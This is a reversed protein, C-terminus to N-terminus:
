ESAAAETRRLREAMSALLGRAITPQHDLLDLFRERPLRVAWLDCAAVVSASRPSGDLLGLEGFCDGGALRAVEVGGRVVAAEGTLLIYFAEASARERVIHCGSPVHALKSARAIRRLDRKGLRAFLPVDGLLHAWADPRATGPHPGAPGAETLAEAVVADDPGRV